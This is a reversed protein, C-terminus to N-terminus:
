KPIKKAPWGNILNCRGIAVCNVQLELSNELTSSIGGSQGFTQWLNVTKKIGPKVRFGNFRKILDIIVIEIKPL